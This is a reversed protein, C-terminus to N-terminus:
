SAAPEPRAARPARQSGRAEICPLADVYAEAALLQAGTARAVLRSVEAEALPQLQVYEALGDEVVRPDALLLQHEGARERLSAGAHRLLELRGVAGPSPVPLLHALAGFPITAAARTAAASAVELRQARAALMVAAAFRTKGVGAEGAVVVGTAPGGRLLAAVHSLEERRAVLPWSTPM